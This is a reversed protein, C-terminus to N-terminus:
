TENVQLDRRIARRSAGEAKELGQEVLDQEVFDM